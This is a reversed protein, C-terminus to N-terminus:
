IVSTCLGSSERGPSTLHPKEPLILLLHKCKLLNPTKHLRQPKVEGKIDDGKNYKVETYKRGFNSTFEHESVKHTEKERDKKIKSISRMFFDVASKPFFSVNMKSLVPAVFPFVVIFCISVM